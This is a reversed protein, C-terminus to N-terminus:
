IKIVEDEPDVLSARIGFYILFLLAVISILSLIIAAIDIGQDSAGGFGYIYPLLYWFYVLM